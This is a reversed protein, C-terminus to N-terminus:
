AGVKKMMDEIGVKLVGKFGKDDIYRAMWIDDTVNIGACQEKILRRSLVQWFGFVFWAPRTQRSTEM